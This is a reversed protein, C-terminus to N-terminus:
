GKGQERRQLVTRHPQEAGFGHKAYINLETSRSSPPYPVSFMKPVQLITKFVSRGLNVLSGM